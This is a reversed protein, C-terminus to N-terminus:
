QPSATASVQIEKLTRGASDKWETRGNANRGLIVAAATSPSNFLHDRTLRLGTPTAELEGEELLQERLKRVYRHTAPTASSRAVAGAYVLLGDATEKGEARAEPGELHLRDGVSDAPELPEFARVDLVPYILLMEDLFAEVDATEAESLVPLQPANGNDIEARGARQALSLLRGELYRVPAKNLSGDKSTFAVARTWFDKSAHHQDLRKRLVDAEGVYIRGKDVAQESPGVLVYVGPRSLEERPRVRAHGPRAWMLGVGSWNSKEVVWLGEAVGDALFIRISAGRRTQVASQSM